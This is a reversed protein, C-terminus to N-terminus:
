LHTFVHLRSYTMLSPRMLFTM